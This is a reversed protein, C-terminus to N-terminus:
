AAHHRISSPLVRLLLLLTDEQLAQVPPPSENTYVVAGLAHLQHAGLQAVGRLTLVVSALASPLLPLAETKSLRVSFLEVGRQPDAPFVASWCPVQGAARPAGVPAIVARQPGNFAAQPALPASEDPPALFGIEFIPEPGSSLGHLCGSPIWVADLASVPSAGEIGVLSGSGGVLVLCDESRQHVHLPFAQHAPITAVVMSLYRCLPEGLSLPTRTFTAGTNYEQLQRFIQV